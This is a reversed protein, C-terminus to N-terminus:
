EEKVPDIEGTEVYSLFIRTDLYVTKRGSDNAPRTQKKRQLELAQIRDMLGTLGGAVEIDKKELEILIDRTLALNQDSIRVLYPPRLNLEAIQKLRGAWADHIDNRATGQQLRKLLDEALFKCVEEVPNREDVEYRTAVPQMWPPPALGVSRYLEILIQRGAEIQDDQTAADRLRPWDALLAQRIGAGIHGLHDRSANLDKEYREALKPDRKNRTTFTVPILRDAMGLYLDPVYNASMVVSSYAMFKQRRFSERAHIREKIMLGTTSSKLMDAMAPDSLIKRVEDLAIPLTTRDFHEALQPATLKSAGVIGRDYSIGWMAAGLKELWTKGVHAEGSLLLIRNERGRLKRITGLPAQAYFYLGTLFHDRNEPKSADGGIAYFQMSRDLFKLADRTAGHTFEPLTEEFRRSRSYYLMGDEDEFFGTAPARREITVRDKRTFAHLITTIAEPLLKRSKVGPRAQLDDIIVRLPEEEYLLTLGKRTADRFVLSYTIETPDLPNVHAIASELYYDFIDVWDKGSYVTKGDVDTIKTEVQRVIGRTGHNILWTRKVVGTRPNVEGLEVRVGARKEIEVEKEAADTIAQLTEEEIDPYELQLVGVVGVPGGARIMDRAHDRIKAEDVDDDHPTKKPRFALAPDDDQLIAAVEPSLDMGEREYITITARREDRSWEHIRGGTREMLRKIDDISRPVM